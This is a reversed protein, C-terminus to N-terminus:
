YNLQLTKDTDLQLHTGETHLIKEAKKIDKLPGNVVVMFMGLNLKEEYKVVSEKTIGLRVLISTVGGGILGIDFGAIAGILAGAGYLFGFGPIAFVGIGTLLGAVVGAGAGILLPANKVTDYSQIHLDGDVVVAKGILSVQKLSFGSKDLARVANLAKEHTDYIAVKSKMIRNNRNNTKKLEQLKM